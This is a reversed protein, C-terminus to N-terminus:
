TSCNTNTAPSACTSRPMPNQPQRRAGAQVPKKKEAASKKKAKPKGREREDVQQQIERQRAVTGATRSTAKKKVAM